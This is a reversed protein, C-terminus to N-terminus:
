ATGDNQDKRNTAGSSAGTRLLNRLDDVLRRVERPAAADSLPDDGLRWSEVWPVQWTRPYGGSVVKILDRLPKPLRGPADAVLVLGLLEVNRALGSAWQKAVAKAALLGRASTRAVIVVRAPEGDPVSPWAHSGATWGDDLEALTSEAAGGHAGVLWLAAARDVRRVPLRDVLDPAPVGRQPAAPGTMAVSTPAQRGSEAPSLDSPQPLWPNAADTM